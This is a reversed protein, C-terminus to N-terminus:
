WGNHRARTADGLFIPWPVLVVIITTALCVAIWLPGKAFTLSLAAFTGLAIALPLLM